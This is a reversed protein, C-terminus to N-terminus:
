ILKSWLYHENWGCKLYLMMYNIFPEELSWDWASLVCLWNYNVVSHVTRLMTHQGISDNNHIHQLIHTVAALLGILVSPLLHEARGCVSEVACVLRGVAAVPGVVSSNVCM